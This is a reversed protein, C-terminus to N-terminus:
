FLIKKYLEKEDLNKKNIINFINKIKKKNIKTSLIIEANKKNIEIISFVKSNSEYEKFFDEIDLDFFNEKNLNIKQISEINEEPLSYQLLDEYKEINWNKYFYNQNFIFLQNNKKLLPFLVVNTNIIDSYLLNRDYFFNHM